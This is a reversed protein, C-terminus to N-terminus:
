QRYVHAVGDHEGTDEVCTQRTPEFEALPIQAPSARRHVHEPKNVGQIRHDPQREGSIKRRRCRVHVITPRDKPHDQDRGDRKPEDSSLSPPIAGVTSHDIKYELVLRSDCPTRMHLEANLWKCLINLKVFSPRLISWASM